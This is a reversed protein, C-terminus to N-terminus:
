KLRVDNPRILTDYFGQVNFYPLAGRVEVPGHYVFPLFPGVALAAQGKRCVCPNWATLSPVM